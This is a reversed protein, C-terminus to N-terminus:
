RWVELEDFDKDAADLADFSLNKGDLDDFTMYIFVYRIGLTAPILSEIQKQLDGLNAVIGWIDIFTIVVEQQPVRIVVRVKGGAFAECVSKLLSVKFQGFGRRKSLVRSRRIEYSDTLVTTIGLAQEWYKLGWTATAINIQAQLDLDGSASLDLEDAMAQQMAKYVRSYQYYSPASDLMRQARETAMEAM